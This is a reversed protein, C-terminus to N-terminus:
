RIVVDVWTFVGEADQGQGERRYPDCDCTGMQGRSCARTIAQVVGASWTSSLFATERSGRQLIGELGHISPLSSSKMHLRYLLNVASCNWQEHQFQHVCEHMGLHTGELMAWILGSHQLCIYRQRNTLGTLAHCIGTEHASLDNDSKITSGFPIFSHVTDDEPYTNSESPITHYYGSPKLTNDHQSLYASQQNHIETGSARISKRGPQNIFNSSYMLNIPEPFNTMQSIYREHTYSPSNQKKLHSLTLLDFVWNGSTVGDLSIIIGFYILFYHIILTSINKICMAM